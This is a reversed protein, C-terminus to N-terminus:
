GRHSRRGAVDVTAARACLEVLSGAFAIAAAVLLIKGRNFYSGVRDVELSGLSHDLV